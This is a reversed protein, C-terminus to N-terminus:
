WYRFPGSDIHVFGVEPYYGVGGSRLNLATSWIMDTGVRPIAIDIAKGQMHLSHEAVQRGQRRLLDNYLISRYGSIVHIEHGGGLENDVRNLFEIVGLDIEAVENTYHCRLIWNIAILAELDYEGDPSRFTTTLKEGSHTNYLTLRGEDSFDTGAIGSIARTSGLLVLMGALSARLFSRRDWLNDTL